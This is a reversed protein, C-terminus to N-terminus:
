RNDGDKLRWTGGGSNFMLDKVVRSYTSDNVEVPPKAASAATMIDARKLTEKEQVFRTAHAHLM